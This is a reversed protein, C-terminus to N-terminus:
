NKILKSYDIQLVQLLACHPGRSGNERKRAKYQGVVNVTSPRPWM